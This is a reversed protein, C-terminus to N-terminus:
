TRTASGMPKLASLRIVTPSWTNRTPEHKRSGRTRLPADTYRTM